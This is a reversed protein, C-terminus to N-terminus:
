REEADRCKPCAVTEIGTVTTTSPGEREFTKDCVDCRLTDRKPRVDKIGAAIAAFSRRKRTM